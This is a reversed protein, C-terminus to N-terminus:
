VASRDNGPVAAMQRKDSCIVTTRCLISTEIGRLRFPPVEPCSLTLKVLPNSWESLNKEVWGHPSVPSVLCHLVEKGSNILSNEPQYRVLCQLRDYECAWSEGFVRYIRENIRKLQTSISAVAIRSCREALLASLSYVEELNLFSIPLLASSYEVRAYSPPLSALALLPWSTALPLTQALPYRVPCTLIKRARLVCANQLLRQPQASMNCIECSTPSPRAGLKTRVPVHREPPQDHLPRCMTSILRDRGTRRGSM